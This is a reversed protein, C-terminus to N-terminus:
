PLTKRIAGGILTVSSSVASAISIEGRGCGIQADLSRSRLSSRRMSWQIPPFRTRRSGSTGPGTNSGAVPTTCASTPSALMSSTSSATAAAASAKRTHRRDDNDRRASIQHESQTVQEVLMAGLERGDIEDSCPLTRASAAPSSARPDLVDLERATIGASSFPAYEGAPRRGVDVHVRNPLREADDGADRGEVERHHHREPHEAVAIAQPLM